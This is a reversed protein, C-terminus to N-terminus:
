GRTSTVSGSPVPPNPVPNSPMIAPYSASPSLPALAAATNNNVVTSAAAAPAFLGAGLAAAGVAGISTAFTRTQDDSNRVLLHGLFAGLLAGAGAAVAATSNM